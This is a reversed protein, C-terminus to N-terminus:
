YLLTIIIIIQRPCHGEVYRRREQQPAQEQKLTPLKKRPLINWYKLTARIIM